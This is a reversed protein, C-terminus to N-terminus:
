LLIVFDRLTRLVGVAQCQCSICMTKELFFNGVADLKCHRFVNLAENVSVNGEKCDLCFSLFVGSLNSLHGPHGVQHYTFDHIRVNALLGFTRGGVLVKWDTRQQLWGASGEWSVPDETVNPFGGRKSVFFKHCFM